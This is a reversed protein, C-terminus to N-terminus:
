IFQSTAMVVIQQNQMARQLDEIQNWDGNMVHVKPNSVLQTLRQRGHRAFLTLFVDQHLLKPILYRSINSTAGLILVRKM